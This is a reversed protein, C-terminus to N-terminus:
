REGAGEDVHLTDCRSVMSVEKQEPCLWLFMSKCKGAEKNKSCKHFWAPKNGLDCYDILPDAGDSQEESESSGSVLTPRSADTESESALGDPGGAYLLPVLPEEHPIRPITREARAKAYRPARVKEYDLTDEAKESETYSNWVLPLTDPTRFSKRGPQYRVPEGPRVIILDFQGEKWTGERLVRAFRTEGTWAVPSGNANIKFVKDDKKHGIWTDEVAQIQYFSDPISTRYVEINELPIPPDEDCLTPAFCTTRPIM